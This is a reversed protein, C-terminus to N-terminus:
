GLTARADALSVVPATGEDQKAARLDALDDLDELRERIAEFEHIPLVVFVPRGNEELYKPHINM